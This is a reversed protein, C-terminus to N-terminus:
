ERVLAPKRQLSKLWEAFGSEFYELGRCAFQTFPKARWDALDLPPKFYEQYDVSIDVEGNDRQEVAHIVNRFDDVNKRVRAEICALRRTFRLQLTRAEPSESALYHVTPAEELERSCEAFKLLIGYRDIAAPPALDRLNEVVFVDYQQAVGEIDAFDATGVNVELIADRVGLHLSEETEENVLVREAPNVRVLPFRSSDFPTGESRLIRDVLEGLVDAVGFQPQFRVGLAVSKIKLPAPRRIRDSAMQKEAM